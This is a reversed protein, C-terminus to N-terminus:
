RIPRISPNRARGKRPVKEDLEKQTKAAAAAMTIHAQIGMTFSRIVENQGEHFYAWSPERAPNAVPSRFHKDELLKLLHVGHPNKYFIEYCLEAYLKHWNENNNQHM